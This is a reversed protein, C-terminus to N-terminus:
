LDEDAPYYGDDVDEGFDPENEPKDCGSTIEDGYDEDGSYMM